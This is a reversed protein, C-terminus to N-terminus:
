YDKEARVLANIGLPEYEFALSDAGFPSRAFLARIQDESRFQWDVMLLWERLMQEAVPPEGPSAGLLLVGGPRLARHANQLLRLFRKDSLRQMLSEAYVISVSAPPCDPGELWRAPEAKRFHVNRGFAPRLTQEASRVAEANADLCILRCDEGQAMLEALPLLDHGGVFQLSVFTLRREGSALAHTVADVLRTRVLSLWNRYAEGLRTHAHYDDMIRAALDAGAARNARVHEVIEHYSPRRRKDSAVFSTTPSSLSVAYLREVVLRQGEILREAPPNSRAFEHIALGLTEMAAYIAHRHREIAAEAGRLVGVGAEEGIARVLDAVAALRDAIPQLDAGVEENGPDANTM